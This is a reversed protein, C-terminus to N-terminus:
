LTELKTAHVAVINQMGVSLSIRNKCKEFSFVMEKVIKRFTGKGGLFGTEKRIFLLRYLTSFGNNVQYYVLIKSHAVCKKTDDL